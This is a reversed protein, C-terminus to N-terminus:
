RKPREEYRFDTTGISVVDGNELVQEAVRKENVLVGNKSGWDVIKTAGAETVIVAHQRSIMQADLQIDNQATRGITLRDKFLPFRLEQGETVGILLRTVRERDTQEQEESREQLRNDIDDIVDEIENIVDEIEDISETSESRNALENMLATIAENKNELKYEYDDLQNRLKNAQQELHQIREEYKKRTAGLKTELGQQSGKTNFLDSTLQINVTDQDTITEQATGLEYRIQRMQKEFSDELESTKKTLAANHQNTKALKETLESVQIQATTCATLLDQRESIAGEATGSQERMQHRMEDAYRETRDIQAKLASIEQENGTLRGSQEAILKHSRALEKATDNRAIRHLERNESVLKKNEAVQTQLQKSLKTISSQSRELDADRKKVVRSLKDIKNDSKELNTKVQALDDEVQKWIGQRDDVFKRLESLSNQSESLQKKLEKLRQDRAASEKNEKQRRIESEQLELEISGVKKESTALQRELDRISSQDEKAQKQIQQIKDSSQRAHEKSQELEDQVQDLKNQRQDLERQSTALKDKLQAIELQDIEANFKKSIEQELGTWEARLQEIDVPVRDVSDTSSDPDADAVGVSQEDINVQPRELSNTSSDSDPEPTGRAQEDFAARIDSQKFESTEADRDLQHDVIENADPDIEPIELETTLDNESKSVLRNIKKGVSTM